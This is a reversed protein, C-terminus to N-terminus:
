RRCASRDSIGRFACSKPNKVSSSLTWSTRSHRTSSVRATPLQVRPSVDAISQHTSAAASEGELDFNELLNRKQEVSLFAQKSSSSKTNAKFVDDEDAEDWCPIGEIVMRSEASKKTWQQIKLDGASRLADHKNSYIQRVYDLVTMESEELSLGAIDPLPAPTATTTAAAQAITRPTCQNTDLTELVMRAEAAGEAISAAVPEVKKKNSTKGSRAKPTPEDTTTAVPLSPSEEAESSAM